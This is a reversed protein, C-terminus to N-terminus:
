TKHKRYMSYASYSSVLPFPFSSPEVGVSGQQNETKIIHGSSFTPNNFDGTIVAHSDIGGKLGM